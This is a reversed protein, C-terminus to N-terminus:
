TLDSTPNALGTVLLYQLFSPPLSSLSHVPLIGLMRHRVHCHLGIALRLPNMLEHFAASYVGFAVSEQM